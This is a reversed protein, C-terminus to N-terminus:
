RKEPAYIEPGLINIQHETLIVDMRQASAMIVRPALPEVSAAKLLKLRESELIPGSAASFLSIHFSSAWVANIANIVM